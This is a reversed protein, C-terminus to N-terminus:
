KESPESQLANFIQDIAHDTYNGAKDGVMLGTVTSGVAVGTKQLQNEPRINQSIVNRIAFSTSYTVVGRVVLKIIERNTM